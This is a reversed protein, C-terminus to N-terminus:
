SQWLWAHGVRLRTAGGAAGRERVEEEKAPEQAGEADKAQIFRLVEEKILAKRDKLAVGFHAELALRLRKETTTALDASALRARLASLVEADSPAAQAANPAEPAAMAGM